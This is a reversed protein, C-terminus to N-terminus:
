QPTENRLIRKLNQRHIVNIVELRQDTKGILRRALIQLFVVGCNAFQNAILSSRSLALNTFRFESELQVGIREEETWRRASSKGGHHTVVGSPDFVIRWNAKTMRWCLENDESYMHFKENFGGLSDIVERRLLMAAGIIMPVDRKEDHKWHWGLLVNGRIRKPLLHYLKLQWLVTHWARPPSYFVSVQVSGDSNVIRPGVAGIRSDTRITQILRDIAGPTVEADPNLFLVFDSTTLAAGQNCAQGFGRNESNRVIRLNSIPKEVEVKSLSDDTSANDVILVEHPTQINSARIAEICKLLHPGSNWNVIIISLEPSTV